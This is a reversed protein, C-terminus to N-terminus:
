SKWGPAHVPRLLSDHDHGGREADRSARDEPAASPRMLRHEPRPGPADVPDISRLASMPLCLAEGTPRTLYLFGDDADDLVGFEVHRTGGVVCSSILVVQVWKGILSETEEAM